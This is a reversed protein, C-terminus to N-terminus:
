GDHRVFAIESFQNGFHPGGSGTHFATIGFGVRADIMERFGEITHEHAEIPWTSDVASRVVVIENAFLCRVETDKAAVHGDGFGVTARASHATSRRSRRRPA